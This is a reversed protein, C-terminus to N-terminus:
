VCLVREARRLALRELPTYDRWVEIGHAVLYYRLRPYRLKAALAVPLQALHGCVLRNAGRSLAFTDRIFRSKNRGCVRWESLHDNSSRRLDRSDVMYDNLAVLRVADNPGSLDCLAKLYIQLIR